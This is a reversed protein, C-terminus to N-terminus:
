RLAVLLPGRQELVIPGLVALAVPGAYGGRDVAFTGVRKGDNLDIVALGDAVPVLLRGAFVAGPGLAGPVSWQPKLDEMSLAVTASGTFWYLSGVGPVTEAVPGDQRLEGAPLPVEATRLGDDGYILLRPPGPVAVATLRETMAVVNASDGDLVESFVVEPRDADKGTAKYVTLRRGLDDPCREVVGIRGANMFVSDYTCGTRPQRDPVVQAPVQGYEMTEVLDSRLSTILRQGAATLYTGDGVLEAGLEADWNRQAARTGDTGRLATVESCGGEGRPADDPLFGGDSRYVAVANEWAGTITCLPLDRRYRWVPDGTLPDRGVVEGDQGTVVVPGAAVPKPTAPSEVRWAEGLSPPFALPPAPSPQATGPSAATAKFDSNQWILVWAAAVAVVLGAAIAVDRARTFRTRRGVEVPPPPPGALVDEPWTPFGDEGPTLGDGHAQEAPASGAESSPPEPASM